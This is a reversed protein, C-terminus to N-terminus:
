KIMSKYNNPKCTCDFTVGPEVAVPDQTLDHGSHTEGGAEAGEETECHHSDVSINVDAVVFM